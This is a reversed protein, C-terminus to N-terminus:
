FGFGLGFGLDLFWIWVLDLGRTVFGFSQTQQMGLSLETRNKVRQFADQKM